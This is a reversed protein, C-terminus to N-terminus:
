VRLASLAPQFEPRLRRGLWWVGGMGLGEHGGDRPSQKAWFPVERHQLLCIAVGDRGRM